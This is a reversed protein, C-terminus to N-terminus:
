AKLADWAVILLSFQLCIYGRRSKGEVIIKMDDALISAYYSTFATCALAAAGRRETM